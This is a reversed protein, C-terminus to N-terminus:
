LRRGLGLGAVGEREFRPRIAEVFVVVGAGAREMLDLGSRGAAMAAAEVERM